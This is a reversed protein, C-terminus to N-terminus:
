RPNRCVSSHTGCANERGCSYDLNVDFELAPLLREGLHLLVYIRDDVTTLDTPGGPFTTLVGGRCVELLLPDKRPVARQMRM